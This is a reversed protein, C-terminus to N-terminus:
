GTTGSFEHYLGALDGALAGATDVTSGVQTGVTAPAGPVAVVAVPTAPKVVTSYHQWVFYGAVGVGALIAFTVLTSEKM